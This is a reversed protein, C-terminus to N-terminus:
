IGQSGPLLLNQAEAESQLVAPGSGQLLYALDEPHGPLPDPLNFGLGQALQAMGAPTLFQFIEQFLAFLDQRLGCFHTFYYM